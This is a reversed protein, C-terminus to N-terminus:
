QAVGVYAEGGTGTVEVTSNKGVRVPHSFAIGDYLDAAVVKVAAVEKGSSKGGDYVIAEADNSGNTKVMIHTIYGYDSSLLNSEGDSATYHGSQAGHM